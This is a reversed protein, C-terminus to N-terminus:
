VMAIREVAGLLKMKSKQAKGTIRRAAFFFTDTQLQKHTRLRGEGRLLSPYLFSIIDELIRNEAAVKFQLSCSLLENQPQTKEIILCVHRISMIVLLAM